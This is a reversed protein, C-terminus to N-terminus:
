ECVNKTSYDLLNMLIFEKELKNNKLITKGNMTQSTHNLNLSCKEARKTKGVKSFCVLQKILHV